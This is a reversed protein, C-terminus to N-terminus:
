RKKSINPIWNLINTVFSEWSFRKKFEIIENEYQQFNNNKLFELIADAISSPEPNCLLGTKQHIVIEALGGVNTSIIPKNYFYSVMSVGSNTASKYPQIVVDAASFYVNVEDDPIYKDHLIIKNELHNESIKSIYKEKDDYFEGAILVKFSQNKLKEDNLADLLKDLGKYERILGFFLLIREDTPLNLIGRAKNKDIPPPYNEYLPHFLKIKSATLSFKNLDNLVKDSMIIFGDCASIFYRNLLNDGVRKEHPIVNDTIALVLIDKKLLRAITGFAPAFFPLWYRFIVVNPKQRNIYRATKLWSLPNITNILRTIKFPFNPSPTSEFQTTGPFLFDPYQLTFSVIEVQIGQQVFANCLSENFRAPGGRYPYAPGILIIKKIENQNM